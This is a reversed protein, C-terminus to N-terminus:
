RRASTTPSTGPTASSAATQPPTYRETYDVQNLVIGGAALANNVSTARDYTLGLGDLYAGLARDGSGAKAM